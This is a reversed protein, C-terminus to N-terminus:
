IIKYIKNFEKENGLLIVRQINIDNLLRYYFQTFKNLKNLIIKMFLDDYETYIENLENNFHEILICKNMGLLYMYMYLQVKEYNYLWKFLRNTRNKIEIICDDYLGDIEGVVYFNFSNIKNIHKIYNSKDIIIKKNYKEMFYNVTISERSTGYRKNTVSNVSKKIIEKEKKSIDMKEVKKIIEKKNKNLEEINKAKVKVDKEIKAKKIIQEDTVVKKVDKKCEPKTEDINNINKIERKLEKKKEKNIKLKNINQELEKKTLKEIKIDIKEKKLKEKIVEKIIRNENAMRRENDFYNKVQIYSNYNFRKWITIVYDRITEFKNHGTLISVKSASIYISTM